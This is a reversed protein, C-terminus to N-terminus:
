PVRVEVYIENTTPSFVPTVPAMLNRGPVTVDWTGWPMSAFTEGNSNTTGLTFSEPFDCPATGAHTLVPTVGPVSAGSATLVVLRIKAMVPTVTPPNSSSAMVAAGRVSSPYYPGLANKGEPDADMCSGAWGTYGSPFPFINSITRTSGTGAVSQTGDPLLSSNGIGVPLASPAPYNTNGLQVTFMGQIDYDFIIPTTAGSSVTAPVSPQDAGSSAVYGTSTATATYSAAPLSDFFACGDPDTFQSLNTTGGVLTVLIGEVPQGLANVVKAGVNGLTPDFSTINPALLTQARVADTTTPMTPWTVKVSIEKYKIFSSSSGDCPSASGSSLYPTVTRLITFDMGNVNQVDTSGLLTSYNTTERAQDIAAAALNTAVERNKSDGSVWLARVLGTAIGTMIVVAVTLAVMLEVLSVGDDQQFRSRPNSLRGVRDSIRGVWSM